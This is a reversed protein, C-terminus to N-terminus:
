PNLMLILSDTKHMSLSELV